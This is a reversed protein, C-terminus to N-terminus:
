IFGPSPPDMSTAMPLQSATTGTNTTEKCNTERFCHTPRGPTVIVRQWGGGRSKWLHCSCVPSQVQELGGTLLMSTAETSQLGRLPLVPCTALFDGSLLVAWLSCLLFRGVTGPASTGQPHIEETRAVMHGSGPGCRPDCTLSSRPHAFALSQGSIGGRHVSPTQYHSIQGLGM